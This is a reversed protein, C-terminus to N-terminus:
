FYLCETLHCSIRMIEIFFIYNYYLVVGVGVGVGSGRAHMYQLTYIHLCSILLLVIRAAPSTKM